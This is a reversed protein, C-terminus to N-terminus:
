QPPEEGEVRADPGLGAAREADVAADTETEPTPAGKTVGRFTYAANPTPDVKAGVFGQDNIEDMREAVEREGLDDSAAPKKEKAMVPQGGNVPLNLPRLGQRAQYAEAREEEDGQGGVIWGYREALPRPDPM